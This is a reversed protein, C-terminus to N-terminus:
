TTRQNTNRRISIETDDQYGYVVISLVVFVADDEVQQRQVFPQPLDQRPKWSPGAGM